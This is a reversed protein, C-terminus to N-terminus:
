GGHHCGYSHGQEVIGDCVNSTVRDIGDALSDADVGEGGVMKALHGVSQGVVPAGQCVRLDRLRANWNRYRTGGRRGALVSFLRWREPTALFGRDQKDFVVRGASLDTYLKEFGHSALNLVSYTSNHSRVSATSALM